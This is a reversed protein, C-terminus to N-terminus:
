YLTQLQQPGMLLAYRLAAGGLLVLLAALAIGVQQRGFPALLVGTGAFFRRAEEFGGGTRGRFVLVENGGGNAV